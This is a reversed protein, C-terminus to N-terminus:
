GAPPRRVLRLLRPALWLGAIVTTRHSVAPMERTVGAAALAAIRQRIDARVATVLAPLIEPDADTFVAGTAQYALVHYGARLLRRVSFLVQEITTGYPCIFIVTAKGPAPRSFEASQFLTGEV